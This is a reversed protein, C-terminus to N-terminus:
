AGGLRARECGPQITDVLWAKDDTVLTLVTHAGPRGAM